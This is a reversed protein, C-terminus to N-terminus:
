KADKLKRLEVISEVKKDYIEDIDDNRGQEVLNRAEDINRAYVIGRVKASIETVFEFCKYESSEFTSPYSGAGASQTEIM